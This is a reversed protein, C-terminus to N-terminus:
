AKGAKEFWKTIWAIAQNEAKKGREAEEVDEEDARVAFGHKAGEFWVFEHEVGNEAGRETKAQLIEKTQEGQERSMQPDKNGAAAISLPLVVKEVDNPFTLRSPHATFGCVVLPEGSGGSQGMSQPQAQSVPPSARDRASCLEVTWKGGWCFGAAAVPLTPYTSKLGRFFTLLQPRVKSDSNRYFFPLFWYALIGFHYIKRINAVFGTAELFPLSALISPSVM